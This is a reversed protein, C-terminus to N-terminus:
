HLAEISYLELKFQYLTEVSNPMSMTEYTMRGVVRVKKGVLEDDIKLSPHIDLSFSANRQGDLSVLEYHTGSKKLIGLVSTKTNQRLFMANHVSLDTTSAHSNEVAPLDYALAASTLVYCLVLYSISQIKKLTNM